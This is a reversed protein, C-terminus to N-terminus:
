GADVRELGDDGRRRSGRRAAERDPDAAREPGDHLRRVLREVDADGARLLRRRSGRDRRDPGSRAECGRTTRKLRSGGCRGGLAGPRGSRRPRSRLGGRSRRRKRHRHAGARDPGPLTSGTPGAEDVYAGAAASWYGVELTPDGLERALASRLMGSDSEGLDVVLDAVGARAWPQAILGALLAMALVCLSVQVILLTGERHSAGPRRSARRRQRRLRAHRTRDSCHPSGSM